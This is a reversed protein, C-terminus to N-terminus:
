QELDAEEQEQLVKIKGKRYRYIGYHFAFFSAITLFLYDYWPVIHYGRFVDEYSLFATCANTWVGITTFIIGDMKIVEGDM